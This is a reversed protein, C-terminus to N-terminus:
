GVVEAAPAGRDTQRPLRTAFTTGGRWDAPLPVPGNRPPPSEATIRGGHAEVIRQCIYLGLGSGPARAAMASELRQFRGFLRAMDHRAIGIGEDTVGVYIDSEDGWASVLIRGGDPSYKVANVILNALVQRMRDRDWLAALDEGPFSTSIHHRPAGAVHEAVVDRALARVDLPERRLRLAGADFSSVDLVNGVIDTLRETAENLEGVLHRRVEDTLDLHLLTETYGRILAVPTRLEHSVTAIYTSKLQEAEKQYSVDRVIAVGMAEGDALGHVPAYSAAVTVRRGEVTELITELYPLPAQASLVRAFPCGGECRPANAADRCGLAEACPRGLAYAAPRGTLAEITPNFSQVHCHQDVLVIGDNAGNVIAALKARESELERHARRSLIALAVEHALTSLLRLDHKAFGESVRPRLWVMGVERGRVALPLYIAGPDRVDGVVNGTLDLGRNLLAAASSAGTVLAMWSADARAGMSAAVEWTMGCAGGDTALLLAGAEAQVLRMLEDLVAAELDAVENGLLQSIQYLAFMDDAQSQAMRYLRANESELAAHRMAM